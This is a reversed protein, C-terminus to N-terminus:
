SSTPQGCLAAALENAVDQSGSAPAVPALCRRQKHSLAALAALRAAQQHSGTALLEALALCNVVDVAQRGAAGAATLELVKPLLQLKLERRQRGGVELTGVKDDGQGAGCGVGLAGSHGSHSTAAAQGAAQQIGSGNVHAQPQVPRGAMGSM